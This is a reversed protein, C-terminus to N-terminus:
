RGYMQPLYAAQTWQPAQRVINNYAPAPWGTPARWMAAPAATVPEVRAEPIQNRMNLWPVFGQRLGWPMRDPNAMANMYAQSMASGRMNTFPEGYYKRGPGPYRLQWPMGQDWNGTEWRNIWQGYSPGEGHQAAYLQSDWFDAEDGMGPQRGGHQNAFQSAWNGYTGFGGWPVGGMQEARTKTWDSEGGTSGTGGGGYTPVAPAAMSPGAATTSRPVSGGAGPENARSPGFVQEMWNAM